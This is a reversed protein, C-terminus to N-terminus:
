IHLSSAYQSRGERHCLQLKYEDLRSRKLDARLTVADDEDSVVALMFLTGSLEEITPRSTKKLSDKDTPSESKSMLPDSASDQM